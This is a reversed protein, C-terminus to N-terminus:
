AIGRADDSSLRSLDTDENSEIESMRQAHNVIVKEYVNRIYRANGFGVKGYDKNQEIVQKLSSLLATDMEYGSQKCMLLFIQLLEEVSYDEFELFRNFRSSLGPNSKLFQDMESQYGAVIVAFDGRNDEMEKLLVDIAEQGFADDGKTLTYAEDIFLVGGMAQKIIKKTKTATQGLYGGVLDARDVEVVHSNKILGYQHYLEAVERAVVTKGTGPNGTFVMHLGIPNTKNGAEERRKTIEIYNRLKALEAKIHDLGILGQLPETPQEGSEANVQIAEVVKLKDKESLEVSKDRGPNKSSKHGDSSWLIDRVAHYGVMVFVFIYLAKTLWRSEYDPVLYSAWNVGFLTLFLGTSFISFAILLLVKDFRSTAAAGNQNHGLDSM